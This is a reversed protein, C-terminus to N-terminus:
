KRIKFARAKTNSSDICSPVLQCSTEANAPLRRERQHLPSFPLSLFIHTFLSSHLLRNFPFPNHVSSHTRLPAATSFIPLRQTSSTPVGRTNQLLTRFNSITFFNAFCEKKFLAYPNSFSSTLKASRKCFLSFLSPSAPSLSSTNSPSKLGSPVPTVSFPDPFSSQPSQSHTSSNPRFM